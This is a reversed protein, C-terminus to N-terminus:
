VLAIARATNAKLYAELDRMRIRTVGPLHIVPFRQQAIWRRITCLSVSCYKAAQAATLLRDESIPTTTPTM